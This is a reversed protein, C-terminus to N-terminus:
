DEEQSISYCSKTILEPVMYEPVPKGTLYGQIHDCNAQILYDMQDKTEVGEAIIDLGLKHVLSIMAGTIEREVGASCVNKIFSKDIKLVNIPLSKLYNLSSYGTGFDDLSIRVGLERLQKLVMITMDFHHIFINETIELELREPPLGTKELTSKVTQYFNRSTLQVPSINVAMVGDCHYEKEWRCAAECAKQLLIEGLQIILGNEETLPIFQTPSVLGLESNEWRVLAEMGRLRGTNVNYQPQYYLIFEDKELGIRLLRELNTKHMVDRRMSTHFFQINNKGLEKAKYLATDSHKLLETPDDGDEPCIAIGISIGMYFTINDILFKEKFVGKLREALKIIEKEDEIHQLVVAFEDGSIRSVTDYERICSSLRRGVEVLVEDGFIHGYSDNIRKFNDIDMFLVAAKNNLKKSLKCAMDLRDLFLSRNPLGTLLDHYALYNLKEDRDSLVRQSERLQENQQRLEEESAALEEYLQGIEENQGRLSIESLKLETVDHFLAVFYGPQSSYAHVSYWRNLAESHQLAIDPKGSIAVNGFFRIWDFDDKEIGPILETVKKGLTEERRLGTFEEFAKNIDIYVYDIPKGNEDTIIKHYAYANMMNDILLKYFGDTLEM